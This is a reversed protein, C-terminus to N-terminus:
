SNRLVTPLYLYKSATLQFDQGTVLAGCSTIEVTRMLVRMRERMEGEKISNREGMSVTSNM